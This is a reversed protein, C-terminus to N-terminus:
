EFAEQLYRINVRKRASDIFEGFLQNIRQGELSARIKDKVADLSSDKPFERRIDALHQDYYSRVDEDTILVAARFRQDIFRLVTLQWLLQARLEEETLGYRALAAHLKTRSGGFRDRVINNLLNDAEAQPAWRYGSKAIEGRIITQEILRDAAKRRANGHFNPAEGNLFETTGLDRDIDSAKIAHKDLIVAIRDVIVAGNLAGPVALLFIALHMM